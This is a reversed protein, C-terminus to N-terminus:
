GERDLFWQLLDKAAVDPTLDFVSKTDHTDEAFWGTSCQNPNVYVKWMRGNRVGTIHDNDHEGNSGAMVLQCEGIHARCWEYLKIQAFAYWPGHPLEPATEWGYRLAEITRLHTKLRASMSLYMPGWAGYIRRGAKLLPLVYERTEDIYKRIKEPTFVGAMSEVNHVRDAGKVAILYPSQRLQDYYQDTTLGEKSLAAVEDLLVRDSRLAEDAIKLLSAAGYDEVTDHLFVLALLRDRAHTDLDGLLPILIQAIEIQHHFEPTVGDKRIGDHYALGHELAVSAKHLGRGECYGRTHILHKQFTSVSM